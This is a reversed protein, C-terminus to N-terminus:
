EAAESAEAENGWADWGERAPGRRNLEIKPLNPYYKEIMELFIDPKQSHAMRPASIVSPWQTGMAPAPINGKVGILLLEHQERNWFGTGFKDKAWAYHSRYEFGWAEMVALAHPLMPITAWLFLVCDPAAISPVDRTKIVETVSTPYHNDAARDMGTLRSWPEFRWEPDAVIGGYRKDPLAMIKRALAQERRARKATKNEGTTVKLVGTVTAEKGDEHIQGIIKRVEDAPVAALKKLRLGRKKSGVQEALSAPSNTGEPSRNKAPRGAKAVPAAALESGIRHSGMILVTEAQERIEDVEKFLRKIADAIREIRRIAEYTKASHIDRDLAELARKAAPVTKPIVTLRTSM